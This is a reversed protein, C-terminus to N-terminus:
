LQLIPSPIKDAVPPMSKFLLLFPANFMRRLCLDRRINKYITKLNLTDYLECNADGKDCIVSTPKLVATDQEVFHQLVRCGLVTGVVSNKFSLYGREGCVLFATNGRKKTCIFLNLSADMGAKIPDNPLTEFAGENGCGFDLVV